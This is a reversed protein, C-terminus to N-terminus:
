YNTGWSEVSEFSDSHKPTQQIFNKAKLKTKPPGIKLLDPTSPYPKQPNSPHLKSRCNRMTTIAADFAQNFGHSSKSEGARTGDPVLSYQESIAPIQDRKDEHSEQWDGHPPDVDVLVLPAVGDCGQTEEILYDPVWKTQDNPDTYM